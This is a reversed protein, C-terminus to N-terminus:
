ARSVFLRALGKRLGLQYPARHSTSSGSRCPGGDRRLSPQWRCSATRLLSPSSCRIHHYAGQCWYCVMSVLRTVPRRRPLLLITRFKEGRWDRSTEHVLRRKQTMKRSNTKANQHGRQKRKAQSERKTRNKEEINRTRSSPPTDKGHKEIEHLTRGIPFTENRKRKRRSSIAARPHLAM